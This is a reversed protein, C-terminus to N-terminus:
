MQRPLLAAAPLHRRCWGAGGPMHIPTFGGGRAPVDQCCWASKIYEVRSHRRRHRALCARRRRKANTGAYRLPLNRGVQGV